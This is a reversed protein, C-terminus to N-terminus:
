LMLSTITLVQATCFWPGVSAYTIPRLMIPPVSSPYFPHEDPSTFRRIKGHLQETEKLLFELVSGADSAM